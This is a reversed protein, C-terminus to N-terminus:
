KSTYNQPIYKTLVQVISEIFTKIKCIIVVIKCFKFHLQIFSSHWLSLPPPAFKQCHSPSQMCIQTMQVLKKLAYGCFDSEIKLSLFNIVIFNLLSQITFNLLHYKRSSLDFVYRLFSHVNKEQLFVTNIYSFLLLKKTHNLHKKLGKISEKSM